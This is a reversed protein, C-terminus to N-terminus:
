FQMFEAPFEDLDEPFMPVSILGTVFEYIFETLGGDYSFWEHSDSENVAIKWLDPSTSEDEIVYYIRDGNDTGGIVHLRSPDVPTRLTGRLYQSRFSNATSDTMSELDLWQNEHTPQFVYIFTKFAGTGYTEVVQKYEEPLRLGYHQEFDNWTERLSVRAAEPPPCVRKLDDIRNM